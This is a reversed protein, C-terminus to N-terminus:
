EVKSAEIVTTGIMTKVSIRYPIMMATGPIPVLWVFIDKNEAMFQTPRRNPRHGSIPVYRVACVVAPGEYGPVKVPKASQYSMAIDYRAAGDYIPITRNCAASTDSAGAPVPMLLASIPDIVGRKHADTVPIRDPRPDLPPEIASAQVIGGPLSMRVTRSEKSSAATVSFAQPSVQRSGQIAGSAQGAGRGGTFSGAIGSLRASVDVRYSSAEVAGKITASGLPLGLFSIGYELSFPGAEAPAAGAAFAALLLAPFRM